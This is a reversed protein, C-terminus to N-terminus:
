HMTYPVFLYKKIEQIMVYLFMLNKEKFFKVWYKDDRVILKLKNEQFYKRIEEEPVLLKDTYLYVQSTFVIENSSFKEYDEYHKKAVILLSKSLDAVCDQILQPFLKYELRIKSAVIGVHKYNEINNQIVVIRLSKNIQHLAYDRHCKLCNSFEVCLKKFTEEIFIKDNAKNNEM